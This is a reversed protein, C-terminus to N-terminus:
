REGGNEGSPDEPAHLPRLAPRLGAKILRSVDEKRFRLSRGIRVSPIQRRSSKSYVTSLKWRVADAFEQPTLLTDPALSLHRPTQIDSPM